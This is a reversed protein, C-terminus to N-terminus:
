VAFTSNRAPMASTAGATAAGQRVSKRPKSKDARPPLAIIRGTQLREFPEAAALYGQSDTIATAAFDEPDPV